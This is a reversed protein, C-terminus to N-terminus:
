KVNLNPLNDIYFDEIYERPKHATPLTFWPHNAIFRRPTGEPYLKPTMITTLSVAENSAGFQSAWYPITRKHSEESTPEKQSYLGHIHGAHAVVLVVSDPNEKQIKSVQLGMYTDRNNPLIDKRDSAPYEETLKEGYEDLNEWFEYHNTDIGRVQVGNEKALNILDMYCDYEFMYRDPLLFGDPDSWTQEVLEEESIEDNLYKNIVKNHDKYFMEMAMIVPKGQEILHKLTQYELTLHPEANHEESVYILNSSNLKSLVVGDEVLSANSRLPSDFISELNTDTDPLQECAPLEYIQHTGDLNWANKESFSLEISPKRPTDTPTPYPIPEPTQVRVTASHGPAPTETQYKEVVEGSGCAAQAFLYAALAGTALARKPKVKEVIKKLPSYNM